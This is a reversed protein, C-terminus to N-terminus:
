KNRQREMVVWKRVNDQHEALTSAFAHGGTGNAVFYLYSVDAPNAAARLSAAGPNCIPTIPLGKRTYTNWPTDTKLDQRRINGSFSGDRRWMGYIVTPDMQLPMGLKLRNHIAASVLPREADFATEKEIISAMIRIAEIDVDILTHLVAQQAQMMNTLLKKPEIPLSYTYTEPLLRGEVEKEQLLGQLASQWDQLQSSTQKALLALVEQTRLGEPITVQHLVVDGQLLKAWVEQVSMLGSFQYEGAKMQTSGTLFKGYIRFWLSSDIIGQSELRKAAHSAATGHAIVITQAAIFHKHTMQFYAVGMVVFFLLLLGGGVKFWWRM